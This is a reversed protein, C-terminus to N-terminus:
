PYEVRYFNNFIGLYYIDRYSTLRVTKFFGDYKMCGYSFKYYSYFIYNKTRIHNLEWGRKCFGEKKEITLVSPAYDKFDQLKPNTLWLVISIICIIVLLIKLAKM